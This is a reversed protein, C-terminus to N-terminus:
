VLCWSWLCWWQCFALACQLQEQSNHHGLVRGIWTINTKGKIQWCSINGSFDQSYLHSFTGYVHVNIYSSIYFIIYVLGGSETQILEMLLAFSMTWPIKLSHLNKNEWKCLSWIFSWMCGTYVTKVYTACVNLNLKLGLVALSGRNPVHAFSKVRLQKSPNYQIVKLVNMQWIFLHWHLDFECAIKGFMLVIDTKVAQLTCSELM